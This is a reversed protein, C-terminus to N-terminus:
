RLFVDMLLIRVCFMCNTHKLKFKDYLFIYIIYIYIHIYFNNKRLISAEDQTDNNITDNYILM